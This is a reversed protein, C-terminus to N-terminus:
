QYRVASPLPDADGPRWDLWVNVLLTVRREDSEKAYISEPAAHLYRGDFSPTSARSQYPRSCKGARARISADADSPAVLPM